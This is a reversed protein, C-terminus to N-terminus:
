AMRRKVSARKGALLMFVLPYSIVLLFSFFYSVYPVLGSIFIVVIFLLVMAFLYWWNGFTMNWSRKIADVPSKDEIVSSVPSLILKLSLYIGPIVFAIFGLAIIVSTLFTTALLAPYRKLAKVIVEKVNKKKGSVRVFVMGSIFTGALFILVAYILIYSIGVASIGSVTLNTVNLSSTYAGFLIYIIAYIVALSFLLPDTFLLIFSKKFVSIADFAM